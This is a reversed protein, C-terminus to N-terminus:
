LEGDEFLEPHSARLLDLVTDRFRDQTARDAFEIIPSWLAKGNADLRPNGDRDLQKVSPMALWRSGKPGVMLKVDNIVLGSVTQISLFGLVTGAENRFPTFKRIKASRTTARAPNGAPRRGWAAAEGRRLESPRPRVTAAM